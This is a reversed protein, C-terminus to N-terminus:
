KSGSVARKVERRTSKRRNLNREAEKVKRSLTSLTNRLEANEQELEEIEEDNKAIDKETDAYEERLEELVEQAEAVREAHYEPLYNSLFDDFLNELGSFALTESSELYNGLGKSVFISMRTEGGRTETKTFLTINDPSIQPIIIAEASRINKDGFLGGGKMNIDYRDDIWDDFAKQADKREPQITVTLADVQSKEYTLSTSSIRGVQASVSFSLLLFLLLAPIRHLRNM